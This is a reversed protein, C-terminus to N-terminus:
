VIKITKRLDLKGCRKMAQTMYGRKIKATNASVKDAQPPPPPVDLMGGLSPLITFVCASVLGVGLAVLIGVGTGVAFGVLVGVAVGAAVGVAVGVGSVM